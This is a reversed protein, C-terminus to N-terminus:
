GNCLNQNIFDLVLIHSVLLIIWLKVYQLNIWFALEEEYMSFYVDAAIIINNVEIYMFIFFIEKLLQTM